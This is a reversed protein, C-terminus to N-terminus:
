RPRLRFAEAFAVTASAYVADLVAVRQHDYASALADVARRDEDKRPAYRFSVTERAQELLGHRHLSQLAASMREESAGLTAAAATATWYTDPSRHLLLLLELAA